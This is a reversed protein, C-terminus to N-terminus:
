KKGVQKISLAIRNRGTDVDLVKVKVVDGVAIFQTIDKVFTNAVESIHVLGDQHVGIDVFAGFNAVNTVNGELQMGPKLDKVDHVDDQFSATVFKKRPDRGPKKLEEIIDLVTPLGAEDDVFDKAAVGKLALEDGVVDVLPKHVAVAIKEVIRYSEPHVGSNDLPNHAGRIRLFGASQEFAKPGLKKVKLFEDRSQFTGNSDRYKIIEAAVGSTIGSVYALLPASATNVDVGVFNVCSEVVADLRKKLRLQNVDHQYQGVGISKPDIKVLEALPDQLRRGISVAGRVTLDKDPFEKGALLSASYVSAGAESVMIVTVKGRVDAAEPLALAKQAFSETERSGTGNGVAILEANYKHVWHLLVKASGKFDERPKTPYIVADELLKGTSDLAVIKCGTRLGPDIGITARGGAPPALMLNHMNSAFTEMADAEAIERSELRIRGILSTKMLRSYADEIITRMITASENEVKGVIERQLKQVIVEDDIEVTFGIVGEKEARRMALMNHGPISKVPCSYEFYMDYKTKKDKYESRVSSVYMGTQMMFGHVLARHETTEALVEAIIDQAGALAAVVDAVENFDDMHTTAYARPEFDDAMLMIGEALATLGKERAITARTRKKPKYPLYLEELETKSFCDDIKKQLEPTMKGQDVITKVITEKRKVLETLYSEREEITRLQVEDLGGTVEKRYRAVFPVTGGENFLNLVKTINLTSLNMEAAIIGTIDM